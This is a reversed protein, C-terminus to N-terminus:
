NKIKIRGFLLHFAVVSFIILTLLSFFGTIVEGYTFSPDPVALSTDYPVYTLAVYHHLSNGGETHYDLTSTARLNVAYFVQGAKASIHALYCGPQTTGAGDACTAGKYQVWDMNGSTNDADDLYVGLITYTAGPPVALLDTTTAGVAHMTVTQANNPYM